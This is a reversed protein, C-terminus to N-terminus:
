GHHGNTPPRGAIWRRLVTSSGPPFVIPHVKHVPDALDWPGSLLRRESLSNRGREALATDLEARSGRGFRRKAAGTALASTPELFDSQLLYLSDFGRGWGDCAPPRM